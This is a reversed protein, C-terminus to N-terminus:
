WRRGPRPPVRAADRRGLEAYLRMVTRHAPEQLPDLALLRRAAAVAAERDGAHRLLSTVQALAQIALERLREREVVLWEEFPTEGVDLGALFDGRYLDAAELLSPRTGDRACQEFRLVDVHIADPVLTVADQDIQLGAPVAGRLASLAQRLNARAEESEMDPWLLVALKERLHAQERHCALHALLAQAKRRPRAFQVVAGSEDRLEFGGPLRLALTSAVAIL